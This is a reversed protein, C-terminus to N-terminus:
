CFEDEIERDLDPLKIKFTKEFKSVDMLMNTSRNDFFELLSSDVLTCKIKKLKLIKRIFEGKSFGNNSGLNYVGTIKNKSKIILKLIQCITDMRLPNFFVDNFLFIKEKNNAKKILDDSFSKKNSFSKGFFNTRLIISNTNKLNMEGLHKSKAYYNVINLHNEKNYGPSNYVHDTSIHIIKAKKFKSIISINKLGESNVMLARSNDRECLDIDAIASFNIIYKFDLNELKEKVSSFKSIDIQNFHNSSHSFCILNLKKNFKKVFVSGLLGNAGLVIINEGLLGDEM